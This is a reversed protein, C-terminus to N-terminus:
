QMTTQQWCSLQGGPIRMSDSEIVCSRYAEFQEQASALAHEASVGEMVIQQLLQASLNNTSTRFPFLLWAQEHVLRTSIAVTEATAVVHLQAAARGIGAQQAYEASDATTQRAPLGTDASVQETLYTLWTWCAQREEANAQASIFYGSMYQMSLRDRQDQGAPLPVYGVGAGDVADNASGQSFSSALWMAAREEDILARRVASNALTALEGDLVRRIGATLDNYQQLAAVTAPDTLTLTPPDATEDLVDAGLRELWDFLDTAEFSGPLYGIQQTADDTLAHAAALFDATTWGAQPYPVGAADFLGKNYAILTVDIAGPLAWLQGDLRFADVAQEYFNNVTIIADADILPDIALVSELEHQAFGTSGQFCAAQAASTLLSADTGASEITVAIDPHDHMFQQAMQAFLRSERSGGLTRFRIATAATATEQAATVVVFDPIPTAEAQAVLLAAVIEEAQVRAEDLAVDVDVGEAYIQRLAEIYVDRVQAAGPGDLMPETEATIVAARLLQALEPHFMDFYGMSEATSRRAPFEATDGYAWRPQQSLFSILEWAEQPHTTGASISASAVTIARNGMGDPMPVVGWADEGDELLVDFIFESPVRWMAIHTDRLDFGDARSYQKAVRQFTVLETYQRLSTAFDPDRMAALLEPVSSDTDKREVAYTPPIQFSSFPDAYGWQVTKGDERITLADIVELFEEWSWDDDPYARNANDFPATRYFIAQYDVRLPVGWYSGNLRLSELSNFNFDDPELNNDEEVYPTLDLRLGAQVAEYTLPTLIVDASSAAMIEEEISLREYPNADPFLDSAIVIEITVHPHLETFAELQPKFTQEEFRHLLVKVTVPPQWLDIPPNEIATSTPSTKSKELLMESQCSVLILATLIFSVLRLKVM